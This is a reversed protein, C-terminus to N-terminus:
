RKEAFFGKRAHVSYTPDVARIAVDHRRGDPPVGTYYRLVYASRLEAEVELFAERLKRLSQIFFAKGSNVEAFENLLIQLTTLELGAGSAIAYIPYGFHAAADLVALRSSTGATNEGDTFCVIAKRGPKQELYRMGLLMADYLRTRGEARASRIERIVPERDDTTQPYLRIESNFFILTVRDGPNQSQVFAVAADQISNLSDAMSESLDLLLVIQLPVDQSDLRDITVPVGDEMVEFDEAKLGPIRQKGRTVTLYIEVLQSQVSFRFRGKEREEGPRTTTQATGTFGFSLFLILAALCISLRGPLFTVPPTESPALASFSLDSVGLFIM